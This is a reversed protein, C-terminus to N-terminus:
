RHALPGPHNLFCTSSATSASSTFFTEEHDKRWNKSEPEKRSNRSPKGWHIFHLGIFEAEELQTKTLTKDWCCLFLSIDLWYDWVALHQVLVIGSSPSGPHDLTSASILFLLIISHTSLPTLSFPFVQFPPQPATCSLISSGLIPSSDLSASDSSTVHGIVPAHPYRCPWRKSKKLDKIGPDIIHICFM